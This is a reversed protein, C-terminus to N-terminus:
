RRLVSLRRPAVQAGRNKPVLTRTRDSMSEAGTGDAGSMIQRVLPWKSLIGLM